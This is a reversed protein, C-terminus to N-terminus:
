LLCLQPGAAHLPCPGCSAFMRTCARIKGAARLHLATGGPSRLHRELQLRHVAPSHHPPCAPVNRTAAAMRPWMSGPSRAKRRCIFCNDTCAPTYRAGGQGTPQLVQIAQQGEQLGGGVAAAVPPVARHLPGILLAAPCTPQQTPSCPASYQSQMHQATHLTQSHLMSAQALMIGLGPSDRRWDGDWGPVV